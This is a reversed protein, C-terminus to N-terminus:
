DLCLLVRCGVSENSNGPAKCQRCASRCGWPANLWCGGRLLRAAGGERVVPDKVEREPYPAFWDECWEWVNGALDFLGWANPPFSGVPTTQERYVGKQGEGYTHNGNYNAQDTSITEGCFFPSTTGARCSYEWQAETPLGFHLGTKEGLKTYFDQCDDWSVFEVPRDDGQFVSPKRGTVRHWQAQTVPFVGLWFGKTLTVRHRTERLGRGEEGQPSGMLFSGPPIWSFSMPVKTRRGLLITRQPVCPRVGEALLHVVRAQWAAREPHQEPECCTALLRRHLRLLEARRPDDQEELWDALVLSPAEESPSEAIAQLLAQEEPRPTPESQIDRSM